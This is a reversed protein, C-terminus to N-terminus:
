MEEFILGIKFEKDVNKRRHVEKIIECINNDDIKM